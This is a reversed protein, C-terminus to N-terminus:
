FAEFGDLEDPIDGLLHREMYAQRAAVDPYEKALWEVPLMAQKEANKAGVLLQLNALGDMMEYYDNYEEAPVQSSSLSEDTFIAQPFIHDVHFYNNALDIFPFILSLLAFARFRDQYQTDIIDEIEEDSFGISKGQDAM